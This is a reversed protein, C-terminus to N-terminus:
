GWNRCWRGAMTEPVWGPLPDLMWASYSCGIRIRKMCRKCIAFIRFGDNAAVLLQRGDASFGLGRVQGSKIYAEELRPAVERWHRTCFPCQFDSYEVIVVPADAVGM